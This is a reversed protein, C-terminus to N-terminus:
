SLYSIMVLVKIREATVRPLAPRLLPRAADSGIRQQGPGAIASASAGIMKNNYLLIVQQLEDKDDSVTLASSLIYQLISLIM